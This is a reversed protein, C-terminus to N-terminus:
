AQRLIEGEATLTGVYVGMDYVELDQRVIYVHPGYELVFEPETNWLVCRIGNVNYPFYYWGNMDLNWQDPVEVYIVEEDEEVVDMNAEADFHVQLDNLNMGLEIADIAFMEDDTINMTKLGRDIFNDFNM